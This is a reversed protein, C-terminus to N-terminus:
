HGAGNAANGSAGMKGAMNSQFADSIRRLLLNREVNLDESAEKVSMTRFEGKIAPLKISQTVLEEDLEEPTHNPNDWKRPQEGELNLEIGTLNFEKAVDCLLSWSEDLDKAGKIKLEMFESFLHYLRFQRRKDLSHLVELRILQYGARFGVAALVVAVILFGILGREKELVLIVSIVMMVCTVTYAILAVQRQNWGQSLLLHHIHGRDASMIPKGRLARRAMTMMTDMIPYGLVFIPVMFFVATTSKMASLLSGVALTFGLFLSGTDGLFVKAPFFNFRLFALLSGALICSIVSMGSHGFILSVLFNCTCVFLAVGSALGDVGDILNVANTIGVIWLVTVPLALNISELNIEDALFPISVASIRLGAYYYVLVAAVVQALFKTRARMGKVDDVMGVLLVLLLPPILRQVQQYPVKSDYISDSVRNVVLGTRHLIYFSVLAIIFPAAIALGGMRPIPTTHIKREDPKDVAGLKEALRMAVPVLFYTAGFACLFLTLYTKYQFFM